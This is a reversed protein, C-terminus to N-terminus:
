NQGFPPYCFSCVNLINASIDIKNGNIASFIVFNKIRITKSFCLKEKYIMEETNKRNLIEWRQRHCDKRSIREVSTTLERKLLLWWPFVQAVHWAEKFAIVWLICDIYSTYKNSYKITLTVYSHKSNLWRRMGRHDYRYLPALREQMRTNFIVHQLNLAGEESSTTVIWQM